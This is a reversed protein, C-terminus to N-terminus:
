TPRAMVELRREPLIYVSFEARGYNKAYKYIYIYILTM